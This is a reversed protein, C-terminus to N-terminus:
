EIIIEFRQSGACEDFLRVRDQALKIIGESIGWESGVVAVFDEITLIYKKEFIHNLLNGLVKNDSTGVLEEIKIKIQENDRISM